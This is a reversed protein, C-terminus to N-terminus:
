ENDASEKSKDYKDEYYFFLKAELSMIPFLLLFVFVSLWSYYGHNTLVNAFLFMFYFSSIFTAIGVLWKLHNIFVFLAGRLKIQAQIFKYYAFLIILLIPIIGFPYNEYLYM